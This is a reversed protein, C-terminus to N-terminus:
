YERDVDRGQGAFAVLAPRILNDFCKPCFDWATGTTSTSGEWDDTHSLVQITVETYPANGRDETPLPPWGQFSAGHYRDSVTGCADCKVGATETVERAPITRTEKIHSM